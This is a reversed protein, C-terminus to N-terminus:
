VLCKNKCYIFMKNNRFYELKKLKSEIKKGPEGKVIFLLALKTGDGAAILMMIIRYHERGNTKIEINKNGKFDITTNFGMELFLGTEDMNILRYDEDIDIELEKRKQFDEEIFKMKKIYKDEPILQGIHSISRIVLVYRKIFRYVRRIKADIKKNSFDNKLSCVYTLISKTSVSLKNDRKGKIWVFMKEEEEDSFDKIIGNSKYTLYRKDKNNINNLNNENKIWDRIKKRDIGFRNSISHISIIM